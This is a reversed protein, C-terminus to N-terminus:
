LYFEKTLEGYEESRVGPGVGQLILAPERALSGPAKGLEMLVREVPKGSRSQVERVRRTFLHYHVAMEQVIKAEACPLILSFRGETSLLRGASRLLDSFSLTEGHRVQNRGPKPSKVAGAFFPPNSAILDYLRGEPAEFNQIPLSFVRVRKGWPSAAINEAAQEASGHDLEVADVQAEPARQALMLAILGTGAGIDLIKTAGSVDAWAGLLVGDTGVKMLCRDQRITFQRFQFQDKPM